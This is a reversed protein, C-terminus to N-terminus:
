CVLALPISSVSTSRLRPTGARQPGISCASLNAPTRRGSRAGSLFAWSTLTGIWASSPTLRHSKRISEALRPTVVEDADLCLIWDNRSHMVGVQRQAGYGLWPQHIVQAGLDEARRITGDTSGSDVVIMQEVFDVVSALCRGIVAEEDQAIVVLTLPLASREAM